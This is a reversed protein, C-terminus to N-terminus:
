IRIVPALIVHGVTLDDDLSRIPAHIFRLVEEDFGARELAKRKQNHNIMIVRLQNDSLSVRDLKRMSLSSLDDGGSVVWLYPSDDLFDGVGGTDSISDSISLLDRDIDGMMAELILARIHKRTIRM